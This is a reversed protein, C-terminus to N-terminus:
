SDVSRFPGKSSIYYSTVMLLTIFLSFVLFLFIFSGYSTYFYSSLNTLPSPELVFPSSFFLSFFLLPIFASFPKSSFYVNPSIACIYGVLIMIAGVYVVIVMTFVLVRIFYNSALSYLLFLSLLLLMLVYYVTRPFILLSFILCLLFSFVLSFVLSAKLYGYFVFLLCFPKPVFSPSGKM